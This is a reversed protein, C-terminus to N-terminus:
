SSALSQAGVIAFRWRATHCSENIHSLDGALGGNLVTHQIPTNDKDVHMNVVYGAESM